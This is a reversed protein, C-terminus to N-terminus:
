VHQRVTALLTAAWDLLRGAFGGDAFLFRVPTRLRTGLLVSRAGDRNQVASSRQRLQEGGAPGGLFPHPFM